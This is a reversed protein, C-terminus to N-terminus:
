SLANELETYGGVLNDEFFIVPISNMGTYKMLEDSLKSSTLEIYDFDIDSDILLKKAKRCYPCTNRGFIIFETDSKQLIKGIRTM